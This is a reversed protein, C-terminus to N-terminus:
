AATGEESFERALRAWVLGIHRRLIAALEDGRRNSLAAIMARHEVMALLWGAEDSSYSYRPRHSRASLQEHIATLEPNGSARVIAAHIALNTAFYAPRDRRAYHEEMAAHLKAIGEIEAHSARSAALQGALAEIGTLVELLNHLERSSTARVVAGRSPVFDILGEGELTKLAERLPTRSVGLRACLEGEIIRSGPPLDERVILARIHAVLQDALRVRRIPSPADNAPSATPRM